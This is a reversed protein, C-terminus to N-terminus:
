GVQGSAAMESYGGRGTGPGTPSGVSYQVLQGVKEELTMQRLLADVKKEIAPASLASRVPAGHFGSAQKANQASISTAVFCAVFTFLVFSRLFKTPM